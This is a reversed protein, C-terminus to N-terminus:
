DPPYQSCNGIADRKGDLLLRYALVYKDKVDNISFHRLIRERMKLGTALRLKEDRILRLLIEALAPIDGPKHLFPRGAEGVLNATGGVMTSVIPLGETMAELVANSNGEEYSPLVLIDSAALVSTVDNAYGCLQVSGALSKLEIAARIRSEMPGDGYIKLEVPIEGKAAMVKEWADMLDLLGKKEALKGLFLIALSEGNLIKGPSAPAAAVGNTIRFIRSEPYGISKMARVSNESMAAIADACSKFVRSRMTGFLIKCSESIGYVGVDPIKQITRKGLLRATLLAIVGAIRISHVHVIDYENRRAIMVFPILLQYIENFIRFLGSGFSLRVVEFGHFKEVTKQGARFRRSLTLISHGDEALLKALLYGQKELGGTVPPPFHPVIMLIRLARSNEM